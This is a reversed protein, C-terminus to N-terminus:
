QLEGRLYKDMSEAAQKAQVMAGVITLPGTVVDGCAFVGAMSTQLTQPDVAITGNPNLKLHMCNRALRDRPKSGTSLIVTDCNLVFESGEIEVPVRRGSADPEGMQTKVCEIGYVNGSKNYLIKKQLTNGIIEVGESRAIEIEDARAPMEEVSRRYVVTSKAGCRLAVRSTDIAVNGGGITIVNEAHIPSVMMRDGAMTSLNFRALFENSTYVGKAYEGAIYMTIPRWAGTAVLVSDYRERLEDLSYPPEGIGIGYHINVGMKELRSIREFVIERPLRFEPIGYMTVGGPLDRGEFVEVAHGMESLKEAATIGAPGLGIIATHKGTPPKCEPIHTHGNIRVYDAAFRELAGIAVPKGRIGLVCSGECQKSQNCLRGCIASMTSQTALKKAAEAVNGNAIEYVFEPINIHNPCGIQCRPKPCHLCRSAEAMAAKKTIGYYAEGDDTIRIKETCEHVDMRPLGSATLKKNESSM